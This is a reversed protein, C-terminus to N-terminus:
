QMTYMACLFDADDPLDQSGVPEWGGKRVIATFWQGQGPGFSAFCM